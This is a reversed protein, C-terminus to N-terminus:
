RVQGVIRGDPGFLLLSSEPYLTTRGDASSTRTAGLAVRGQGRADAFSLGAGDQGLGVAVRVIGNNDLMQMLPGPGDSRPGLMTSGGPSGVVMTPGNEMVAMSIAGTRNAGVLFISPRGDAIGFTARLVNQEDYLNLVPNTGKVAELRARVRGQADELIFASARLERPAQAQASSNSSLYALVIGIAAVATFFRARLRARLIESELRNIREEVTM